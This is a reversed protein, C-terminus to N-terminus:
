YGRRSNLPWVTRGLVSYIAAAGLCVIRTPKSDAVTAALYPRCADVHEDELEVKNDGRGGWCRTGHDMVINGNWLKRLLPRLVQGGRGVFPRGETDEDRGPGEGVVLLTGRAGESAFLEGKLVKPVFPAVASTEVPDEVRDREWKRKAKCPLARLSCRQCDLDLGEAPTTEVALLPAKPYM